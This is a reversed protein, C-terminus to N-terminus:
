TAPTGGYLAQLFAHFLQSQSSIGLKSYVNRKHNIVTGESITLHHAVSKSSHGKISLEVIDVERATLAGDGLSEIVNRVGYGLPARTATHVSQSMTRWAWHKELSAEVLPALQRLRQLDLSSYAEQPPERELFVHVLQDIGVQVVFHAEDLVGVNQYHMRYYDSEEFGEPAVERLTLLGRRGGHAAAIYLPDLQYLGAVYAAMDKSLKAPDLNTEVLAAACNEQYHFVIFNKFSVVSALATRLASLFGAQDIQRVAEAALVALDAADAAIPAPPAFPAM